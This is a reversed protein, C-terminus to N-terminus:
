GYLPVPRSQSNGGRPLTSPQCNKAKPFVKHRLHASNEASVHIRTFENVDPARTFRSKPPPMDFYRIFPGYLPNHEKKPRSIRLYFLNILFAEGSPPAKRRRQPLLRKTNQCFRIDVSPPATRFAVCASLRPPARRPRHEAYRLLQGYKPM